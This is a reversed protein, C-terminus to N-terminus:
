LESLIYKTREDETIFLIFKSKMINGTVSKQDKNYLISYMHSSDFLSISIYNNNRFNVRFNKNEFNTLDVGYLTDGSEIDGLKSKKNFLNFKM